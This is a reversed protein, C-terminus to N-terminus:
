EQLIEIARYSQPTVKVYGQSELSKILRHTNGRSRLKLGEAMEAYTPSKGHRSIFDKLFDLLDRERKTM